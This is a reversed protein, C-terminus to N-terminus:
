SSSSLSTKNPLNRKKVNIKNFESIMALCVETDTNTRPVNNQNQCTNRLGGCEATGSKSRGIDFSRRSSRMSNDFTYYPWCLRKLLLFIIASPYLFFFLVNICFESPAPVNRVKRGTEPHVPWGDEDYVVTRGKLTREYYCCIQKPEMLADFGWIGIETSCFSGILAKSIGLILMTLMLFASLYFIMSLVDDLVTYEVVYSDIPLSGLFGAAHYHSVSMPICALGEPSGMCACLCHWTCLCRDNKQIRIRRLALLEKRSNLVEVSCHFRETPINYHVNLYFIHQKQPPILVLKSQIKNLESPLNLPCDGLKVQFNNSTLGTNTVKITIITKKPNTCEVYVETIVASTRRNIVTNFDARVELEVSSYHNGMYGLSLSLEGSQNRITDKYIDAYHKLFFCGKKGRKEAEHDHLWLHRPQNALCSGKPVSCRNPQKFFAEFGVGAVNCRDGSISIQSPHVILYEGPGNAVEPHKKADKKRVGEPVLLRVMKYNLSFYKPNPEFNDMVNYDAAVVNHFNQINNLKHSGLYIPIGQTLDHWETKGEVDEEKEFVQIRIKHEVGPEGLEYVTYWLDSFKLCHTSDHYSEPNAFPPVFRDGCDQGGRVQIGGATQRKERNERKRYNELFAELNKIKDDLDEDDSMGGDPRLANMVVDEIEQDPLFTSLEDRDTTSFIEKNNNWVSRDYKRNMKIPAFRESIVSGQPSQKQVNHQAKTCNQRNKHIKFPHKTFSSSTEWGKMHRPCEVGDLLYAPDSYVILPTATKGGTGKQWMENKQRDCSCCFGKSYPVIRGRYTIVGCTPHKSTVDCGKYGHKRKNIVQETAEANVVHSSSMPYIQRMREQNLKIVYPNLLRTKSKSKPDYVHDVVIYQSKNTLIGENKLRMTIIVKRNCKLIQSSLLLEDTEFGQFYKIHENRGSVPEKMNRTLISNDSPINPCRTMVARMEVTPSTQTARCCRMRKMCCERNRLEQELRNYMEPNEPYVTQCKPIGDLCFIITILFFVDHLKKSPYFTM